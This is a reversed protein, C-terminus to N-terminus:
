RSPAEEVTIVGFNSIGAGAFFIAQNENSRSRMLTATGTTHIGGGLNDTRNLNLQSDVFEAEGDNPHGAPVVAVNEDRGLDHAHRDVPTSLAASKASPERASHETALTLMCPYEDIRAGWDTRGMTSSTKSSPPTTARRPVKWTTFAAGQGATNSVLAVGSLMIQAATM